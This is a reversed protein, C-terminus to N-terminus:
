AVERMRARSLTENVDPNAAIYRMVFTRPEESVLRLEHLVTAAELIKTLTALKAMVQVASM